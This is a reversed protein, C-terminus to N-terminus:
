LATACHADRTTSLSCSISFIQEEPAKPLASFDLFCHIRLKGLIHWHKTNRSLEDTPRDKDRYPNNGLISTRWGRVVEPLKIAPKRWQASQNQISVCERWLQDPATATLVARCRQSIM